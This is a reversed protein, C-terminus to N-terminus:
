AYFFAFHRPRKASGSGDLRGSSPAEPRITPLGQFFLGVSRAPRVHRGNWAPFIGRLSSKSQWRLRSLLKRRSACQPQDERPLFLMSTPLSQAVPNTSRQSRTQCSPRYSRIGRADPRGVDPVVFCTLILRFINGLNRLQSPPALRSKLRHLTNPQVDIAHRVARGPGRVYNPTMQSTTDFARRLKTRCRV